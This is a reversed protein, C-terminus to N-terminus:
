GSTTSSESSGNTVKRQKQVGPVYRAVSMPELHALYPIKCFVKGGRNKCELNQCIHGHFCTETRCGGRRPCPQSRALSQLAPLTEEELPSHDYECRDGADCTGLLHFNNCVRRKDVRAKLRSFTDASVPPQYPDLRYNNNNVAVCGEPIDARKPLNALVVSPHTSTGMGMFSKNPASPSSPSPLDTIQQPPNSKKDLQPDIHSHKCTKGYRCKGLSHFLCVPKQEDHNTTTPVTIGSPQKIPSTVQSLGTVAKVSTVSVNPHRYPTVGDLPSHRFASRFEEIGMGLKTFEDHFRVGPTNVLTFKTSNGMFPTLESIYGVDHCAAFYIHKCQTNDAYLRLLARLKFDANEKLEGADIFETLGYSRNFSAIFPSLSRSEGGVLGTKALAKSLGAVNAYVRVMVQGVLLILQKRGKQTNRSPSPLLPAIEPAYHSGLCGYLPKCFESQQKCHELGKRRLSVKIEDNLMQAAISGGEGRKAVLSENFVYGDGDVLFLVFPNREQDKAMQKYKERAEREEEYDSKLRKYDDILVAYQNL